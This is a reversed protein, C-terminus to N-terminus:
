QPWRAPALPLRAVTGTCCARQRESGCPLLLRSTDIQPVEPLHAHTLRRRRDTSLKWSDSCARPTSLAMPWRPRARVPFASRPSPGDSRCTLTSTRSIAKRLGTCASSLRCHQLVRYRADGGGCSGRAALNLMKSPVDSIWRTIEPLAAVPSSTPYHHPHSPPPLVGTIETRDKARYDQGTCALEWGRASM